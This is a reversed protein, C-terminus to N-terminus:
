QWVLTTQLTVRSMEKNVRGADDHGSLTSKTLPLEYISANTAM